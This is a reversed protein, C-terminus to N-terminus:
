LVSATRLVRDTSTDLVAVSAKVASMGPDLGLSNAATTFPYTALLQKLRPVTSGLGRYHRFSSVAGVRVRPQDPDVEWPHVYLV